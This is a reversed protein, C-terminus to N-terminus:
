SRALPAFRTWAAPVFGRGRITWTTLPWDFRYANGAYHVVARVIRDDESAGFVGLEGAFQTASVVPKRDTQVVFLRTDDKAPNNNPALWRVNRYGIMKEAWEASAGATLRSYIKIQFLDLLLGAEDGYPRLQSESQLAVICALGKERAVSLARAFGDIKGLSYFEDLVLSVRRTTDIEVSADSLEKCVRRLIGGCVVTSMAQFNPSTQVIVIRPGTYTKSLWATVSFRKAPPVTSWAYAMPRLSTMAASLLTAMISLVTKSEGDADGGRLLPSASLDLAEIRQRLDNPDSLVADLLDRAGWQRGKEKAVARIVDTLLLRATDSWFSQESAPVIDSAFDAAAADGSIDAAIDWAWGDRHAPSILIVSQLAFSRTVDGKNCHMMLLDGREVMQTVYARALNSKGHGSAGFIMTYRSELEFPLNLYPALFVGKRAFYGAEAKFQNRLRRCADHDYYIRPQARDPTQFPETLPAEDRASLRAFYAAIVSIAFALAVRPWEAAFLAAWRGAHRLSALNAGWDTWAFPAETAPLALLLALLPGFSILFVICGVYVAEESSHYLDLGPRLKPLAVM